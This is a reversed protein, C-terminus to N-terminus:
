GSFDETADRSYGRKALFESATQIQEIPIAPLDLNLLQQEFLVASISATLLVQVQAVDVLWAKTITKFRQNEAMDQSIVWVDAGQTTFFTAKEYNLEPLVLLIRTGFLPKAAFWNTNAQYDAAVAGFLYIAPNEIQRQQMITVFDALTAPIIEQRGYSVWRGILMPLDAPLQTLLSAQIAPAHKVGMYVVITQEQQQLSIPLQGDLLQTGTLFTVGHSIGRKTLPIGSYAALASAATIGPIIQYPLGAAKIPAIEEDLRGFIGADGGKLRVVHQQTKTAQLLLNTIWNQAHGKSRPSKGVSVLEAKKPALLLLLPNLLRDYFVIDAAQLAKLGAVTILDPDGAGAGVFSIM